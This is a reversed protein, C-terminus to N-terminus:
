IFIKGIVIERMLDAKREWARGHLPRRKIRLPLPAKRCRVNRIQVGM